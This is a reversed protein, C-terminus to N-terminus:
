SVRFVREGKGLLFGTVSDLRIRVFPFSEGKWSPFSYCNDLRIMAVSLSERKGLTFGTVILYGALGHCFSFEGREL